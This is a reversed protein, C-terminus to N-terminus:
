SATEWHGGSNTRGYTGSIAFETSASPWMYAYRAYLVTLESPDAPTVVSQLTLRDDLSLLAAVDIGLQARIPGLAESGRNDLTAWGRVRDYTVPVILIGRGSEVTYRVKGITVGPLDTALMLLRDVEDTRGIEGVLSRLLDAVERRQEGELRVEDIRGESVEVTLVGASVTQPPIRSTAFAYGHKRAVGSVASLLEQTRGEGFERGLFPAVASAFQGRAIDPAGAVHIAGIMASGLEDESGPPPLGADVPEHTTDRDPSSLSVRAASGPDVPVLSGDLAAAPTSVTLVSLAALASYVRVM